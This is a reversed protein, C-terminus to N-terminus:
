LLLFVPFAFTWYRQYLGPTRSGEDYRLYLLSFFASLCHACLQVMMVNSSPPKTTISLFVPFFPTHYFLTVMTPTMYRDDTVGFSAPLIIYGDDTVHLSRQHCTRYFFLRRYVDDVIWLSGLLFCFFLCIM